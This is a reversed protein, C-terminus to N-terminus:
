SLWLTRSLLVVSRRSMWGESAALQLQASWAESFTEGHVLEPLVLLGPCCTLHDDGPPYARAFHATDTGKSNFLASDTLGAASDAGLGMSAALCDTRRYNSDEIDSGLCSALACHSSWRLSLYGHRPFDVM